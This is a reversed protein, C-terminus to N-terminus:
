YWRPLMYGSILAQRAPLRAGGTELKAAAADGSGRIDFGDAIAMLIGNLLDRPIDEAHWGATFTITVPAPVDLDVSPWSTGRLPMLVGGGDGRLEEQYGAGPPSSTPGTLEILSGGSSYEIKAVSVTRGRPLRIVQRNDIPFERLVWRHARRIITRHTCNEAWLIAAAVYDQLNVDEGAGDIRVHNKILTEDILWPSGDVGIEDIDLRLPCLM